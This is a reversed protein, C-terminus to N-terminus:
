IEGFQAKGPYYQIVFDKGGGQKEGEMEQRVEILFNQNLLSTKRDKEMGFSNWGPYYLVFNKAKWNGRERKWLM